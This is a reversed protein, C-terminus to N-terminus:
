PIIGGNISLFGATDLEVDWGNIALLLAELGAIEDEWGAAGALKAQRIQEDIRVRESEFIGALSLAFHDKAHSRAVKEARNVLSEWGVNAYNDALLRVRTNNLTFNRWLDNKGEESLSRRISLLESNDAPPMLDEGIFWHEVRVAFIRDLHKVLGPHQILLDRNGKPLYTFEFGRWPTHHSQCEVAYTRGKPSTLLATCVADFFENGVSFFELDPREQAIKRRFTGMRDPQVGDSSTALPVAGTPFQNPRFEVIGEPYDGLNM